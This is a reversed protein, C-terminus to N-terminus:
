KSRRLKELERKVEISRRPVGFCGAGKHYLRELLRIDEEKSRARQREREYENEGTM